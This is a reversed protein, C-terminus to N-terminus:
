HGAAVPEGLDLRMAAFDITYSEFARLANSGIIGYNRARPADPDPLNVSLRPMVLNRGALGIPANTWSATRSRVTGGASTRQTEGTALAAVAAPNAEAYLASLTTLNAGTDLVLPLTRGDIRTTLFLEEGSAVLNPAGAASREAPLVSFEGAASALRFRGLARMVPLGVIARIDYGGPVQAFTLHEDDIILFPVNRIVTGAIEIREAIGVRVGVSGEVGNAVDTEGEIMTVGLRRATEASLVSLSAGTDFVAEQQAGNVSFDLRPLGVKDTRAAITRAAVAGEVAMSPGGALLAALRWVQETGAAEEALGRARQLEALARGWRACASYDENYLATETLIVLAAQRTAPDRAEALRVLAPDVRREFRAAALRARILVAEDGRAGPLAQELPALDGRGAAEFAAELASQAPASAAAAADTQAMAPVGGMVAAALLMARMMTRM